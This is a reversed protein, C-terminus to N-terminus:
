IIGMLCQAALYIGFGCIAPAIKTARGISIRNIMSDFLFTLVTFIVAGLLATKLADLAYVLGAAYPFLGFILAAYIPLIWYKRSSGKAIYFDLVLAIVSLLVIALADIRPLIIHPLFARILMLSLASVGGVLALIIGLLDRKKDM